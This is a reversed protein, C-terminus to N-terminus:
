VIGTVPDVCEAQLGCSPLDAGTYCQQWCWVGSDEACLANSVGSKYGATYENYPVDNVSDSTASLPPAPAPEALAGCAAPLAVGLAEGRRAAAASAAAAAARYQAYSRGGWAPARADGPPLYMKGYWARSGAGAPSSVDALMAHPVARLPKGLRPSLWTAAGEGMMVILSDEDSVVRVVAGTSLRMFLGNEQAQKGGSGRDTYYGATMSIFLGGDTHMPMTLEAGDIPAAYLGRGAEMGPSPAAAQAMYAHLHELHDGSSHIKEFTDYTQDLLGSDSDSNSNSSSDSNSDSLAMTMDLALLVQRTAADVASRLRAAGNGCSSSMATPVGHMSAAGASVRQTKDNMLVRAAAPDASLCAGLNGLADERAERFHPINTV